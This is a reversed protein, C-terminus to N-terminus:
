KPIPITGSYDPRKKPEPKGTLHEVIVHNEIPDTARSGDPAELWTVIRLRGEQGVPFGGIYFTTQQMKIDPQMFELKMKPTDLRQGDPWYVEYVQNFTRGIDDTTPEWQTYIWWQNPVVAKPPISVDRPPEGPPTEQLKVGASVMVNILSHAGDKDVVVRECALLAKCNM